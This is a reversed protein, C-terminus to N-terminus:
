LILVPYRLKYSLIRWHKGWAFLNEVIIRSKDIQSHIKTEVFTFFLIVPNKHNQLLNQFGKDGSTSTM